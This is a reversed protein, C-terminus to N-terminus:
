HGAAGGSSRRCSERSAEPPEPACFARVTERQQGNARPASFVLRHRGGKRARSGRRPGADYGLADMSRQRAAKGPGAAQPRPAAVLLHPGSTGKAAMLGATSGSAVTGLQTSRAAVCRASHLPTRRSSASRAPTSPPRETLRSSERARSQAIYRWRATTPAVRGRLLHSHRREAPTWYLWTSPATSSPSSTNSPSANNSPLATNGRLCACEASPNSPLRCNSARHTLACQPPPLVSRSSTRRM